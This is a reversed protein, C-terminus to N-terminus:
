PTNGLLGHIEEQSVVPEIVTRESPIYVTEIHKERKASEERLKACLSIVDPFHAFPCTNNSLKNLLQGFQWEADSLYDAEQAINPTKASTIFKEMLKELTSAIFELDTKTQNLFLPIETELQTMDGLMKMRANLIFISNEFAQEM